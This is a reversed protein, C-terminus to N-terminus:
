LPRSDVIAITGPTEQLNIAIDVLLDNSTHLQTGFCLTVAYRVQSVLGSPFHQAEVACVQHSRSGLNPM